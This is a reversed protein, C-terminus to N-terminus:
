RQRRYRLRAGEIYIWPDETRLLYARADMRDSWGIFTSDIRDLRAAMREIAVADEADSLRQSKADSECEPDGCSWAAILIRGTFTWGFVLVRHAYEDHGLSFPSLTSWGHWYLEPRWFWIRKVTEGEKHVSTCTV